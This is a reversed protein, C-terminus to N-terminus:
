YDFKYMAIPKLIDIDPNERAVLEYKVVFRPRAIPMDIVRM